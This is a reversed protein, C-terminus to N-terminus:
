QDPDERQRKTQNPDTAPPPARKMGRRQREVRIIIDKFSGKDRFRGQAVRNEHLVAPQGGREFDETTGYSVASIVRTVAKVHKGVSRELLPACTVCADRDTYVRPLSVGDALQYTHKKDKVKTVLGKKKAEKFAAHESHGENEGSHASILYREKGKVFEFVAINYSKEVGPGTPDLRYSMAEEALDSHEEMGKPLRNLRVNVVIRGDPDLYAIPNNLVYAYPSINPYKGKLPDVSM